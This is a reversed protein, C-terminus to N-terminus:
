SNLMEVFCFLNSLIVVINGVSPGSEGSLWLDNYFLTSMIRNRLYVPPWLHICLAKVIGIGIEEKSRM